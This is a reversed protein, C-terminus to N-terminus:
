YLSKRNNRLAEASFSESILNRSSQIFQHRLEEDKLAVISDVFGDPTDSVLCDRELVLPLGEVGVSTTVVPVGNACAELIKMRIGSGITIPVIMISDSLVSQIDDVFGLFRVGKYQKEISLKTEENWRGIVNLYYPEVANLKEWCNSLFWLLGSKNSPHWEPGVFSLVNHRISVVEACTATNVCAFSTHIPKIVGADELKATDISSLTLVRDFQNLLFVEIAKNIELQAIGILSSDSNNDLCLQKRVFGIEHEVFYKTVNAPLSLAIHATELMECQVIDINFKKIIGNIHNLYNGNQPMIQSLWDEYDNRKNKTDKNLFKKLKNNLRFLLEVTKSRNPRPPLVFPMVRVRGDMKDSFAKKTNPIPYEAYECYTIFANIDNRVSYIGNFIAQHGGSILPYPFFPLVFLVNKM